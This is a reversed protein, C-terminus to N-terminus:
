ERFDLIITEKWNDEIAKKEANDEASGIQGHFANILDMRLNDSDVYFDPACKQAIGRLRAPSDERTMLDVLGLLTSDVPFNDIMEAITIKEDLDRGEYFVLGAVCPNIALLQRYTTGIETKGDSPLDRAPKKNPFESM